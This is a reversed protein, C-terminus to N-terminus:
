IMQFGPHRNFHNYSFSSYNECQRKRIGFGVLTCNILQVHLKCDNSSSQIWLVTYLYLISYMHVQSIQGPDSKQDKTNDFNPLNNFHSIMNRTRLLLCNNALTNLGLSSIFILLCRLTDKFLDKFVLSRHGKDDQGM